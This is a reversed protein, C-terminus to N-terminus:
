PKVAGKFYKFFASDPSLILQTEPNALTTRYAEMTRMFGYFDKDKNFASAYIKIAEKDGQGKVIEADRQANALLVTREKDATSRIQLALEEGKSRTETARKTLESIMRRVTSARNENVLDTRVIRVDVIQIGLKDEEIKRNVRDRIENMIATRESSLLEQLTTRGLEARTADTLVNKMLATAADTTHVTKLFQLPDVIKYRAFTDVIVPEGSVNEIKPASLDTKVADDAPKPVQDLRSVQSSSIVVQEPDPDVPLVRRDFYLVDQVLPIKAHLGPGRIFSEPKGQEGVPQGLQLVIAQERQDVIFFTQSVTILAVALLGLFTLMSRNM